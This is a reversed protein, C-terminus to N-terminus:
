ASLVCHILMNKLLIMLWALDGDFTCLRVLLFAKEDEMKIFYIIRGKSRKWLHRIEDVGANLLLNVVGCDNSSTLSCSFLSGM